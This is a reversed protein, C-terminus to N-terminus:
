KIRLLEKETWADAHGANQARISKILAPDIPDAGHDWSRRVYTLVSALQDDPLAAWSPMDLNYTRGDVSVAGRLGNLVIRGLRQDSGLVWDSNALPPALGEQGMGDAKHCQICTHAYVQEGAAFRQQEVATLPRPPPPPVYGPKGPWAIYTLLTEEAVLAANPKSKTTAARTTAARTAVYSLLATPESPLVLPRRAFKTKGSQNAGSVMANRRWFRQDGAAILDLLGAVKKPSGETVIARALSECLEPRGVANTSWGPDKCISELFALERGRLGSIAGDRVYLNHTDAKLVGALVADSQPLGIGSATLVFQLRVNPQADDALKLVADLLDGRDSTYLITESLRLAQARVRPDADALALKIRPADLRHMGDLTWLAHIRALPNESSQAVKRLPLVAAISNREVLLRQATERYWSNPSSLCEVLQASNMVSLKPAAPKTTPQQDPVIRFIRGTLLHKDLDRALYQARLYPTMYKAHQLLGHHMDVIYLAGDPGTSLACPRFREYTSTMFEDHDYVNKGTVIADSETLKSRRILNASPECAFADGYYAHPLLDGRYIWPSCVATFDALRDNRMQSPRYGRNEATDHSPWCDQNPDLEVYIGAVPYNPNRMAYPPAIYNGRLYDSNSDTYIRGVDDQSIGWQGMERVYDTQLKGYDFRYRRPFDANYLWNDLGYMLGNAQHEPQIGDGYDTAVITQEDCVNDHNTDRCFLLKPPAAILIGDRVLSIARPMILNDLFVTSKDMVGDGDTDELVSIRGVPKDEGHGEPDPMYGRMECVWLKGDPGFEMAVPHQVMPEAAVVEAHLGPPLKFTKIEEEPSLFPVPHPTPILPGTAALKAAEADTIPAAKTTASKTTARTSAKPNANAAPAKAADTKHVACAVAFAGVASLVAISRIRLM